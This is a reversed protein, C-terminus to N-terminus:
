NLIKGGPLGDPRGANNGPRCCHDGPSQRPARSAGPVARRPAAGRGALFSMRVVAQNITALVCDDGRRRGGTVAERGARLHAEKGSVICTDAGVPLTTRRWTGHVAGVRSQRHLV